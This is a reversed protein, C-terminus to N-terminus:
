RKDKWMQQLDRCWELRTRFLRIGLNVADLSPGHLDRNAASFAELEAVRRSFALGAEALFRSAEARGFQSAIM